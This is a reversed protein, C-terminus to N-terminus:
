SLPTESKTYDVADTDRSGHWFGIGFCIYISVTNPRVDSPEFPLFEIREEVLEAITKFAHRSLRTLVGNRTNLHFFIPLVDGHHQVSQKQPYKGQGYERSRSTNNQLRRRQVVIPYRNIFLEAFILRSHFKFVFCNLCEFTMYIKPFFFIYIRPRERIFYRFKINAAVHAFLFRAYNRLNLNFFFFILRNSNWLENENHSRYIKQSFFVERTKLLSLWYDAIFIKAPPIRSSFFQSQFSAIFIILKIYTKLNAKYM